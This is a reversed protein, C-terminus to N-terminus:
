SGSREFRKLDRRLDRLLKSVPHTGALAAPPLVVVMCTANQTCARVVSGGFPWWKRRHDPGLVLTDDDRDAYQRLVVAPSGQRDVLKTVIGEPLGGLTAEFSAMITQRASEAQIRRWTEMDTMGDGRDPWARVAHLEAGRRRAESVAWLLPRASDEVQGIGVIIRPSQGM